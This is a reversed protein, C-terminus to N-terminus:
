GGDKWWGKFKDRSVLLYDKDPSFVELTVTGDYGYEKLIGVMEEWDISGCGLPLHQDEEGWNDSLHLHVIDQSFAQFFEQVVEKGGEMNAHGVDLHVKLGPVEELFRHFTEVGGFPYTFNEMMLTLEKKRIYGNIKKVFNLNAEVLEEESHHPMLYVPHITVLEAGLKRFFDVYEKFEEWCAKKVRDVPLSFPISPNTHGIVELGHEELEKKVQQVRINSAGPPELSLDLFDFGNKGAWEIEGKVEVAPNNMMGVRM